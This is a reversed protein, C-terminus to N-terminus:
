LLLDSRKQLEPIGKLEAYDIKQYRFDRGFLDQGKTLRTLLEEEPIEKVMPDLAHSFSKIKELVQTANGLYSHHWGLYSKSTPFAKKRIDHRFFNPSFNKRLAMCGRIALVLDWASNEELLNLKYYTMRYKPRLVKRWFCLKSFYSFLFTKANPHLFEDFDQVLLIDSAKLRNDQKMKHFAADRVLKERIYPSPPALSLDVPVFIVRGLDLEPARSQLEALLKPVQYEARKVLGSHSENGESIYLFDAYALTNRIREEFIVDENWYLTIELIQRPNSDMTTSYCVEIFARRGLTALAKVLGGGEQNFPLAHFV